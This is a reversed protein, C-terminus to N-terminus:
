EAAPVRPSAAGPASPPRAVRVDLDRRDRVEADAAVTACRRSGAVRLVGDHLGCAAARRPARREGGRRRRAVRVDLHRPWDVVDDAAVATPAVFMLNALAVFMRVFVCSVDAGACRGLRDRDGGDAAGAGAAAAQRDRRRERDSMGAARRDQGGAREDDALPHPDLREACRVRLPVGDLRDARGARGAGPDRQGGRQRLCVRAARRNLVEADGIVSDAGSVLACAAPEVTFPGAVPSIESLGCPWIM